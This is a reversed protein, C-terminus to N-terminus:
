KVIETINQVYFVIEVEFSGVYPFGETSIILMRSEIYKFIIKGKFYEALVSLKSGKITLIECYLIWRFPM